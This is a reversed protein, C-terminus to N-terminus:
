IGREKLKEGKLALKKIKFKFRNNSLENIIINIDSLSILHKEHESLVLGNEGKELVDTIFNVDRKIEKLVSIIDIDYFTAFEKNLPEFGEKKKNM